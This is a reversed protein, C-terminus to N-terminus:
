VTEEMFFPNGETKDIILRKLPVLDAGEGARPEDGRKGEGTASRALPMSLLANLMEEASNSGLPDLRLQTYYTKSNWKHSYEPRYNVLLLIKATGLSDALLNLLEQTAEDIWHLDEFIVMLPQNLSERLLIRQIAELTRRKKLQGDMQALPDNGEIIGLLSFLYPLTDEL